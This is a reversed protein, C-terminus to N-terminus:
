GPWAAKVARRPSNPSCGRPAGTSCPTAKAARRTAWHAPWGRNASGPQASIVLHQSDRIWGCGALKQFLTRDLGRPVPFDTDEIVASQWLRAHRLRRDLRKNERNTAERDLLLGLWDERSLDDAASNNQMEIFADAMATLGVGRLREAIPHILM